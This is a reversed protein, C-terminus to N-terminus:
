AGPDYRCTTGTRVTRDLHVGLEPLATAIRRIADRIRATVAKRAREAASPGLRRAQGGPRTARRLEALLIEREDAARRQGGLDADARAGSLREDLDALRRRYATLAAADLVPEAAAPRDVTRYGGALELAPVDVGPRALLVALDHLGKIDRLYATRGSFGAQWMDGTRRLVV